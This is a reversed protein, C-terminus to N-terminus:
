GAKANNGREQVEMICRNVASELALLNGSTVESQLFSLHGLMGKLLYISFNRHSSAIQKETPPTASM